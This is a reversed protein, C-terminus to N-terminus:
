EAEVEAEAKAEMKSGPPNDKVAQRYHDSGGIIIDGASQFDQGLGSITGCGTLTLISLAMTGNLITKNM